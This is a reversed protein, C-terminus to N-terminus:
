VRQTHELSTFFGPFSTDICAVGDLQCASSLTGTLIAMSMAIRHDGYSEYRAGGHGRQGGPILMGDAREELDFGASRLNTAMCAIRDSEKVRLEHADRVLTEGTAYLAAVSLVPIEDILRPILAGELVTGRLSAARVRLDAVPEPGDSRARELTIDAGMAWLADLIGARSPNIGIDRLVLESGPIISAAVLFFAAASIDGPVSVDRAEYDSGPGTTVKLGEVQIPLGYFAFARESHDRSLAPEEIQVDESGYLGALMLASKIQASAVPLKFAGGKLTGGVVALPLRDGKERGLITAGMGRLLGAVRAMPRRRLSDDGTMASFFPQGALIGMLLRTTTGSNGCYVIDGPEKLGRLGVGEIILSAGERWAKVGMQQFATLTREVDEGGSLGTIRARGRALSSFIVARHSISKDGPMWLEGRLPQLPRLTRTDDPTSVQSM